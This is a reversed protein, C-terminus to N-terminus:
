KGLAVDTDHTHSSHKLTKRYALTRENYDVESQTVEGESEGEKNYRPAGLEILLRYRIHRSIHGLCVQLMKKSIPWHKEDIDRRMDKYIGTKMLRLQNHPFLAPWFTTIQLMAEGLLWRKKRPTPPTYPTSPATPAPSTQAKGKKEPKDGKESKDENPIEDLPKEAPEIIVPQPTPPNVEKRDAMNVWVKKRSLPTELSVEEHAGKNSRHLTLIKQETM